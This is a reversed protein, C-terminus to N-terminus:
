IYPLKKIYESLYSLDLNLYIFIPPSFNFFVTNLFHLSLIFNREYPTIQKPTPTREVSKKGETNIIVTSAKITQATPIKNIKYSLFSNIFITTKFLGFNKEPIKLFINLIFYPPLLGEVVQILM